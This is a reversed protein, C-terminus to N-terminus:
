AGGATPRAEHSRWEVPQPPPPSSPEDKLTWVMCPMWYFEREGKRCLFIRVSVPRLGGMEEKHQVLMYGLAQTSPAGLLAVAAPRLENVSERGVPIELGPWPKLKEDYTDAASVMLQQTLDNTIDTVLYHRLNRTPLGSATAHTKWTGYLVDSSRKLKPLKPKPLPAWEPEQLQAAPSKLNLAILVQPNQNTLTTLPPLASTQKPPVPHLHLHLDHKAIGQYLVSFIKMPLDRLTFGSPEEFDSLNLYTNPNTFLHGLALSVEKRSM